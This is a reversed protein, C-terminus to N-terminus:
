DPMLRNEDLWGVGEATIRYIREGTGYYSVSILNEDDLKQAHLKFITASLGAMRILETMEVEETGRNEAAALSQLIM